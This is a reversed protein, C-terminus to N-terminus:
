GPRVARANGGVGILFSRLRRNLSSESAFEIGPRSIRGVIHFATVASVEPDSRRPLAKKMRRARCKKSPIGFLLQDDSTKEVFHDVAHCCGIMTSYRCRRTASFNACRAYLCAPGNARLNTPAARWFEQMTELQEGIRNGLSTEPASRSRREFFHVYPVMSAIRPCFFRSTKKIVGSAVTKLRRSSPSCSHRLAAPPARGAISRFSRRAHNYACPSAERCRERSVAHFFDHRSFKGHGVWM